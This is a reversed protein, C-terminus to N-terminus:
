HAIARYGLEALAPGVRHFQRRSGMLGHLLVAVRDGSGWERYHLAGGM